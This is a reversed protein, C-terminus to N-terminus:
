PRCSHIKLVLSLFIVLFSFGTVNTFSTAIAVAALSIADIQGVIIVSVVQLLYQVVAVIVMPAATATVKKLEMKLKKMIKNDM